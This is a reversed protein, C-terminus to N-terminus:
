SMGAVTCLGLITLSFYEPPGFKLAHSALFPAITVLIISSIIGGLVSSVTSVGLAIGGEGKQTMPYGDFTTVVASAPGTIGSLLSPFSGIISSSCCVGVLLM